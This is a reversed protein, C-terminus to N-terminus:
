VKSHCCVTEYKRRWKPLTNEGALQMIANAGTDVKIGPIIGADSLVKIMLRGGNTKMPDNNIKVFKNLIEITKCRKWKEIKL